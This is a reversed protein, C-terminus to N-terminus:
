EQYVYMTGMVYEVMVLNEMTGFMMYDVHETGDARIEVRKAPYLQEDNPDAWVDQMVGQEYHYYMEVAVEGVMEQRIVVDGQLMEKSANGHTTTFYVVMGNQIEEYVATYEGDFLWQSTNGSYFTRYMAKSDDRTSVAFSKGDQARYEVSWGVTGDPTAFYSYGFLDGNWQTWGSVAYVYDTEMVTSFSEVAKPDMATLAVSVGERDGTVGAEIVAKWLNM